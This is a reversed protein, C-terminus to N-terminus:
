VNKSGGTGASRVKMAAQIARNWMPTASPQHDHQGARLMIDTHRTTWQCGISIQYQMSNQDNGCKPFFVVIPELGNHFHLSSPQVSASPVVVDSWKRNAVNEAVMTHCKQGPGSFLEGAGHSKLYGSDRNAECWRKLITESNAQDTAGGVGPTPAEATGGGELMPVAGIWVQGSPLLGSACGLCKVHISLNHCRARLTLSIPDNADPTVTGAFASRVSDLVPTVFHVRQSCDYLTAIVDTLAGDNAAIRHGAPPLFELEGMVRPCIVLVKDTVDSTSVEIINRLNTVRYPATQEDCPLHANSFGDFASANPVGGVVRTMFGPSGM